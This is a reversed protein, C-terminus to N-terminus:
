VEVDGSRAKRVIQALRQVARQFRMRATNETIGLREGIEQFSLGEWQRLVIIERQAPELLDLGIRVWAAGEKRQFNQSPRTVSVQPPDLNLVTDSPVPRERHLERRLATFRDYQGRIVNEIVKAMLGRFQARNSMVFRPGYRLIEVMAEQVFDDIDAKERLMDGVRHEVRNRIWALNKRVLGGLAEPDGGHWRQLLHYTQDPEETM